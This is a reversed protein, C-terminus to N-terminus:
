IKKSRRAATLNQIPRIPKLEPLVGEGTEVNRFFGSLCLSDPNFCLPITGVTGNFRNKKVQMILNDTKQLILVNDAEQTAKATGFVSATQLISDDNEKRPHVVITVHINLESACKRFLSIAKDLAQFRDDDNSITTMFQLNDIIVHEIDYMYVSHEITQIVSHLDQAGYYSMFYMPLNEFCEYWKSFKDMHKELAIGSYQHLMINALRVNKIEFSGWLTNIGQMCLDLSLESLFTTKGSGTPGTFITLEGRRHGKLFDNLLPFRTFAVGANEKAHTLENFLEDGIDKITLLRDITMCWSEQLTKKMFDKGYELCFLPSEVNKGTTFCRLMNLKKTFHLVNQRSQYNNPFWFTIRDFQELFPLLSPPLNSTPLALCPVGTAWKVAICDLENATLVVEKQGSAICQWGFLNLDERNGILTQEQNKFFIKKFGMLVTKTIDYYPFIIGDMEYKECNCDYAVRVGFNNLINEDIHNLKLYKEIDKLVESTIPASNQWYSHEEPSCSQLYVPQKESIKFNEHSNVYPTKNKFEKWSMEKGCCTCTTNGTHMDVFLNLEEIEYEINCEQCATLYGTHGKKFTSGSQKLVEEIEQVSLWKEQSAAATHIYSQTRVTMNYTKLLTCEAFKSLSLTKNFGKFYKYKKSSSNLPINKSDVTKESKLTNQLTTANNNRRSLIENNRPVSENNFQSTVFRIGTRRVAQCACSILSEM